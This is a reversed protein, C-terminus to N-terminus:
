PSMRRENLRHRCAEMTSVGPHLALLKQRSNQARWHLLKPLSTDIVDSNGDPSINAVPRAHAVRKLNKDPEEHELVNGVGVRPPESWRGASMKGLTGRSAAQDCGPLCPFPLVRGPRM